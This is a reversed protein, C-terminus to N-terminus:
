MLLAPSVRSGNVVAYTQRCGPGTIHAQTLTKLLCKCNIAPFYYTFSLAIRDNRRDTREVAGNAELWGWGQTCSNFFLLSSRLYKIMTNHPTQTPPMPIPRQGRECRVLGFTRFEAFPSLSRIAPARLGVPIRQFSRQLVCISVCCRSLAFECEASAM